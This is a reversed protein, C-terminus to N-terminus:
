RLTFITSDSVQFYAPNIEHCNTDYCGGTKWCKICHEEEGNPEGPYWADKGDFSKNSYINLFTGGPEQFYPLFNGDKEIDLIGQFGIKDAITRANFFNLSVRLYNKARCSGDDYWEQVASNRKLRGETKWDAIKWAYIDGDTTCPDYKSVGYINLYGFMGPHKWEMLEVSELQKLTSEPPCTLSTTFNLQPIMVHHMNSSSEVTDCLTVWQPPILKGAYKWQCPAKIWMTCYTKTCTDVSLIYWVESDYNKFRIKVENKNGLLYYSFCITYNEENINISKEM